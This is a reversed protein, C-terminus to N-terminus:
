FIILYDLMAATSSLEMAMAEMDSHQYALLFIDDVYHLDSLMNSFTRWIGRDDKAEYSYPSYADKISM